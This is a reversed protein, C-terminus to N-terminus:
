GGAKKEAHGELKAIRERLLQLERVLDRREADADKVLKDLIADKERLATLAAGLTLLEKHDRDAGAAQQELAAQKNSLVSLSSQMGQLDRLSNWMSTQRSNFEDKRVFDATTERLRGVDNRVDHINNALSQYFNLVILASISLLTGGFLRWFLSVREEPKEDRHFKLSPADSARLTEAALILDRESDTFSSQITPRPIRRPLM